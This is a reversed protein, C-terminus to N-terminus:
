DGSVVMAGKGMNLGRRRRAEADRDDAVKSSSSSQQKCEEPEEKSLLGRKDAETIREEM